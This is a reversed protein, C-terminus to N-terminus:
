MTVFYRTLASDEKVSWGIKQEDIMNLNKIVNMQSSTPTDMQIFNPLKSPKRDISLSHKNIMWFGVLILGAGLLAQYVPIRYGLMNRITQWGNRLVEVKKHRMAKMKRIINQRIATDPVLHNESGIQVSRELNLLTVQYSRCQECSKLHKELLINEDETIEDIKKNILLREIDNCNM